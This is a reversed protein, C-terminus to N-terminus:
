RGERSTVAVRNRGAAKAAYLAVDAADFLAALDRIHEDIVAVGASLTVNLPGKRTSVPAEAVALRIREAVDRATALDTEPLLVAFEEGGYRAPLDTERVTDRIRRAVERLVDDGAGHGYRDNVLKFRDLDVMIAALPHDFRRARRDEEHGVALLRGRNALATLADREAMGQMRGFLRVLLREGGFWTVGGALATVVALILLNRRELRRLESFAVDTPVGLSLVVRAGDNEQALRTFGYLRQVRDGGAAEATGEGRTALIARWVESWSADRGLYREPDPHRLLITGSPDWLTVRTRPGLETVAFERAVWAMDPRAVLVNKPGRGGAPVAHAVITTPFSAPSVLRIPGVTSTSAGAKALLARDDADLHGPHASAIVRGGADALLLNGYHPSAALVDRFVAACATADARRVAPTQALVFLIQRVEALVRQHEAAFLLVLRRADARERAAARRREEIGQYITFLFIPGLALLVLLLLRARVRSVVHTPGERV